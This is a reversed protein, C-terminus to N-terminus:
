IQTTSLEARGLMHQIFHLDVGNELWFTAGM